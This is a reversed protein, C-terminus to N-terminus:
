RIIRQGFRPHLDGRDIHHHVPKGAFHRNDPIPALDQVYFRAPRQARGLDAKEVAFLKISGAARHPFLQKLPANRAVM